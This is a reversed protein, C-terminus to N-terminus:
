FLCLAPIRKQEPLNFDDTRPSVLHSSSATGHGWHGWPGKPIVCAGGVEENELLQAGKEELLVPCTLNFFM